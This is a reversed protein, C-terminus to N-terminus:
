LTNLFNRLIRLGSEQSKEPHFQMACVRGSRISAAFDTGYTCRANVVEDDAPEPYYSHVFFVHPDAALGAWLPDERTHITNWGMHPIKLNEGRFRVVKGPLIGFGPTEPSEESTEFLLQYGLCIGLFPRDAAIWERLPVWMGRRHLSRAADGFAGVGPLIIADMEAISEPSEILAVDAELHVLAQNVSRLNGSDYNVIGIRAM